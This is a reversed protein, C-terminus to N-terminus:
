PAPPPAPPPAIPGGSGATSAPVSSGCAVLPSCLLAFALPAFALSRHSLMVEDHVLCQSPAVAVSTRCGAAMGVHPAAGRATRSISRLLARSEHYPGRGDRGM